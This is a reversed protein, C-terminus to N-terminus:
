SRMLALNEDSLSNTALQGRWTKSATNSNAALM